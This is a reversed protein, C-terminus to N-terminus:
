LDASCPISWYSAGLNELESRSADRIHPYKQELSQTIQPTPSNCWVWSNGTPRWVLLHQGIGADFYLGIQLNRAFWSLLLNKRATNSNPTNYNAPSTGQHELSWIQSERFAHYTWDWNNAEFSQILDNLYNIGSNQDVYNAVSFEGIYISVRNKTQFDVVPQLQSRLRALDWYDNSNRINGPYRQTPDWAFSTSPIGTHTFAMPEYMHVSYTVNPTTLKNLSAIRGPQGYPSEVIIKRSPDITNITTATQQALTNWIGYHATNGTAPENLIDFGWITRNGKYRRALVKWVDVFCTRTTASQFVRHVPYPASRSYFGGPPTHLDIVVSIGVTGFHQVLQDVRPLQTNLWTQYSQCSPNDPDVGRTLQLRVLNVRWSRLVNLDDTNQTSLGGSVMVGRWVSSASASFPTLCFCFLIFLLSFPKFTNNM